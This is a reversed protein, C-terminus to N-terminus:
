TDLMFTSVKIYLCYVKDLVKFITLWISILAENRM